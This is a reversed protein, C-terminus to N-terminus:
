LYKCYNWKWDEHTEVLGAKVPNNLVYEVIRNLEEENRVVHDYSEHQWFQGTRNLIKNCEKATYWKLSQMIKYLSSDTRESTPLSITQETQSPTNTRQIQFSFDTQKKDVLGETNDTRGTKLSCVAREVLSFVVHVHNPMITFSILEYEKNDRYLISDYVLKALREDNLWNNNSYKDLYSDFKEFYDWKGESYKNQKEKKSKYASITKINAKYEDKLKEIVHIPLSNHLRFTIFFTYGISQYHPLNRRYYIKTNM